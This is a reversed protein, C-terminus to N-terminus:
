DHFLKDTNNGWIQNYFHRPGDYFIPLLVECTPQGSMANNALDVILHLQAKLLFLNDMYSSIYLLRFRTRNCSNVPVSCYHVMLPSLSLLFTVNTGGQTNM